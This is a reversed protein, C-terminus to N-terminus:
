TPLGTLREDEPTRPWEAPSLSADYDIAYSVQTRVDSVHYSHTPFPTKTTKMATERADTRM